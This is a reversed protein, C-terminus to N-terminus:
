FLEMQQNPISWDIEPIQKFVGSGFFGRYASLPSPHNATIIKNRSADILPAKKQAFAGLLLFTVDGKDSLRKIVADTLAQWGFDKHSNPKHAEVTLTANLLLVGQKAWPTLDGNDPNIGLEKYINRLSPPIKKGVPVSFSLGMAQNNDHYPDQGILVVKTDDIEFFDFAHFVEALPPFVETSAYAAEVQDRLAGDYLPTIFKKWSNKM